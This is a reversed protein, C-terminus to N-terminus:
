NLFVEFLKSKSYKPHQLFIFIIVFFVFNFIWNLKPKGILLYTLYTIFLIALNSLRLINKGSIEPGAIIAPTLILLSLIFIFIIKEDKFKLTLNKFFKKYNFFIIVIILLFPFFLYLVFILFEVISYNFNFLAFRGGDSFSNRGGDSFSKLDLLSSNISYYNNLSFTLTTIFLGICLHKYSFISLKKFIIKCIIMSIIFFISEQRAFCIITLGIILYFLKEKKLFLILYLSGYIFILDNLLLPLSIFYRFFYPNFLICSVFIFNEFFNNDIFIDKNILYIFNIIILITTLQYVLFIDFNFKKSIIGLFFPYLFRWSKHAPLDKSFEPAYNSISFYDEGDRGGNLFVQELSFYQNTILVLLILFTWFIFQNTKNLNVIKM